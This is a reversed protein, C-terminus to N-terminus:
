NGRETSPRKVREKEDESDRGRPRRRLVVEMRLFGDWVRRRRGVEKEESYEDSGSMILHTKDMDQRQGEGAPLGWSAQCKPKTGSAGLLHRCM